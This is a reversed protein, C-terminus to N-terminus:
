ESEAKKPRGPTRKSTEPKPSKSDLFARLDTLSNDLVRNLNGNEEKLDSIEQELQEIQLQTRETNVPSMYGLYDTIEDFCCNCFYVRGYFEIQFSFDVFVRGNGGPSGCVVCTGPLMPPSGEIIFIRSSPDPKKM